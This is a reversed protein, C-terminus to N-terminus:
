IDIINKLFLGLDNDNISKWTNGYRKFGNKLLIGQMRNNNTLETTAMLNEFGIKEILKLVIISAIGKGGYEPKTYIYGLESKFDNTLEPLNACEKSFDSKTPRKIGGIAVLCKKKYVFCIFKCRDAKSDFGGNEDPYVKGQLRLMEGFAKKESENLDEKKVIKYTFPM